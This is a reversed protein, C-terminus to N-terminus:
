CNNEEAWQFYKKTKQRGNTKRIATAKFINHEKKLVKSVKKKKQNGDIKSHKAYTHSHEKPQQLSDTVEKM